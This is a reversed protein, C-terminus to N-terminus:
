RHSRHAAMRVPESQVVRVEGTLPAPAVSLQGLGDRLGGGPGLHGIQQAQLATRARGGYTAMGHAESELRGVKRLFSQGFVGRPHARRRLVQGSRSGQQRSGPELEATMLDGPGQFRATVVKEHPDTLPGLPDLDLGSRHPGPAGPDDSQGAHSMFHVGVIRFLDVREEHDIPVEVVVKERDLDDAAERGDM